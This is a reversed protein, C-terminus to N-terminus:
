IDGWGDNGLALVRGTSKVFATSTNAAVGRPPPLKAIDDETNLWLEYVIGSGRPARRASHIDIDPHIQNDM